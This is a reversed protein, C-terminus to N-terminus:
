KQAPAHLHGIRRDPLPFEHVPPKQVTAKARHVANGHHEEQNEEAAQLLLRQKQEVMPMQELTLMMEQQQILQEMMQQAAGNNDIGTSCVMTEVVQREKLLAGKLYTSGGDLGIYYSM